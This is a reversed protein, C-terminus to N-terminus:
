FTAQGHWCLHTSPRVSDTAGLKVLKEGQVLVTVTDGVDCRWADRQQKVKEYCNESSKSWDVTELEGTALNYYFSTRPRDLGEVASGLFCVCLMM